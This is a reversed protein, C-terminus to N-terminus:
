PHSSFSSCDITSAQQFYTRRLPELQIVPTMRSGCAIVPLSVDHHHIVKVSVAHDNSLADKPITLYIGMVSMTGGECNIKHEMYSHSRRMHHIQSDKRTRPLEEDHEPHEETEEKETSEESLTAEDVSVFTKDVILVPLYNIKGFSSFLVCKKEPASDVVHSM